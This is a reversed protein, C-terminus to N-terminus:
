KGHNPLAKGLLVLLPIPSGTPGVWMVSVTVSDGSPFWKVPLKVRVAYSVLPLWVIANVPAIEAVRTVVLVVM